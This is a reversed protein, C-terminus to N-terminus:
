DGGLPVDGGLGVLHVIVEPEVGEWFADLEEQTLELTVPGDGAQIEVLYRM